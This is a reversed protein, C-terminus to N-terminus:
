DAVLGSAGFITKNNGFAPAAEALGDGGFPGGMGAVMGRIWGHAEGGNGLLLVLVATAKANEVVRAYVSAM